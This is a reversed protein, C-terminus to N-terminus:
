QNYTFLLGVKPEFDLFILWAKDKKYDDIIKKIKEKVKNLDENPTVTFIPRLEAGKGSKRLQEYDNKTLVVTRFMEIDVYISTESNEEQSYFMVHKFAKELVPPELFVELIPTIGLKNRLALEMVSGESDLVFLKSVVVYDVYQMAIFSVFMYFLYELNSALPPTSNNSVALSNSIENVLPMFASPFIKDKIQTAEVPNFFVIDANKNIKRFAIKFKEEMEAFNDQWNPYNSVPGILQVKIIEKM